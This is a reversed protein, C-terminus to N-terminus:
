RADNLHPQGLMGIQQYEDDFWPERTIPPILPETFATSGRALLIQRVREAQLQERVEPFLRLQRSVFREVGTACIHRRDYSSIASEQYQEVCLSEFGVIDDSLSLLEALEHWIAAVLQHKPAGPNFDIAWTDGDLRSVRATFRGVSATRPVLCYCQNALRIADRPDPTPGGSQRVLHNVIARRHKRMLQGEDVESKKAMM